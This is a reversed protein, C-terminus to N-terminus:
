PAAPPPPVPAVAPAVAPAAAAKKKEEFFMMEVSLLFVGVCIFSDALNFLPWVKEVGSARTYFKIFDRVAGYAIRDAMNGVTGALIMGLSITQVWGKPKGALFIAVIAPVAAISVVLWVAPAGGFKGFVVGPNTTRGIALLGDVVTVESYERVHQFALHKTLLDLGSGLLALGFFLATQRRM